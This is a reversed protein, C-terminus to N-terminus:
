CRAIEEHIAGQSTLTSKYLICEKALLLGTIKKTKWHPLSTVRALTIHPFFPKDSLFGLNRLETEVIKQFAIIKELAEDQVFGAWIVRPAGHYSFCDIRNLTLQVESFQQKHLLAVLLPLKEEQVEGLFQLTMHFESQCIPTIERQMAELYASHFPIAIFLRMMDM